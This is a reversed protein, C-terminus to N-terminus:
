NGSENYQGSVHGLPQPLQAPFSSSNYVYAQATEIAVHRIEKSLGDSAILNLDVDSPLGEGLRRLRMMNVIASCAYGGNAAYFVYACRRKNYAVM